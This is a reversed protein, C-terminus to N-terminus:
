LSITLSHEEDGAGTKRYCIKTVGGSKFVMIKKSNPLQSMVLLIKNKILIL